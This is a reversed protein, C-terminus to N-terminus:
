RNNNNNNLIYIILLDYYYRKFNNNLKSDKTLNFIGAKKAIDKIEQDTVNEQGYRKSFNLLIVVLIIKSSIKKSLEM